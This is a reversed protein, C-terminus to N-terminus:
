SGFCQQEKWVCVITASETRTPMKSKLVNRLELWSVLPIMGMLIPCSWRKLTEFSEDEYNTSNVDMLHTDHPVPTRYHSSSGANQERIKPSDAEVLIEDWWLGRHNAEVTNGMTRLQDHHDSNSRKIKNIQIAFRSWKSRLDRWKLGDEDIADWLNSRINSKFTQVCLRSSKWSIIRSNFWFKYCLVNVCALDRGLVRKLFVGLQWVVCWM